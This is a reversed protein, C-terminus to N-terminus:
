NKTHDTAPLSFAEKAVLSGIKDDVDGPKKTEHASRPALSDFTIPIIKGERKLEQAIPTNEVLNREELWYSYGRANRETVFNFLEVLSDDSAFRSAALAFGQWYKQKERYAQTDPEPWNNEIFFRQHMIHESIVELVEKSNRIKEPEPKNDGNESPKTAQGLIFLNEAYTAMYGSYTEYREKIAAEGIDTSANLERKTRQAAVDVVNNTEGLSMAGWGQLEHAAIARKSSGEVTLKMGVIQGIAGDIRRNLSGISEIIHTKKAHHAGGDMYYDLAKQETERFADYSPEHLQREQAPHYFAEDM